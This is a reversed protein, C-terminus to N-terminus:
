KKIIITTNNVGFTNRYDVSVALKLIMKVGMVDLAEDASAKLAYDISNFLKGNDRVRLVIIDTDEVILVRVNLSEPKSKEFIVVLMEEVALSVSMSTKPSLENQECFDAVTAAANGVGDSKTSLSIYRGDREASIDTLLVPILNKNGKRSIFSLTLATLITLLEAAVFCWWFADYGIASLPLAAVIVWLAMRAAMLVNALFVRKEGMYLYILLQTLLSLPISLSFVRVAYATDRTGMGFIATIDPAFVFLLATLPLVLWLGARLSLKLVDRLSKTDREAGFVGSLPTVPGAIGWIFILSLSNISETIKYAAVASDGFRVSLLNNLALMCAFFCFYELAGPTGAIIIGKSSKLPYVPNLLKFNKSKVFIAVGGVIGALAGGICTAAAVGAVGMDYFVIFVYTLAVTIVGSMIFIGAATKNKGDIRLIGFAPFILMVGVGGASMTLCYDKVSEFNEKSAGLLETIPEIFVWFIATLIIAFVFVLIYTLTFVRRCENFESKGIHNACLTACGIGLMAGAAGYVYYVPTAIGVVSLATDSLINGAILTGAIQALFNGALAITSFLAMKGYLGRIFKGSDGM